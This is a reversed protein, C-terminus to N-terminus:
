HKAVFRHARSLNLIRSIWHRVAHPRVSTESQVQLMRWQDYLPRMAEPLAGRVNEALLWKFRPDTQRPVDDEKYKEWMGSLTMREVNKKVIGRHILNGCWFATQGAKLEITEQGPIDAHRRQQLCEREYATRYRRHSGPVLMLCADDVLALHWTLRTMPRNLIELQEEETGDTENQVFDRHWGFGFDANHPNTFLVVDGLCLKTGLYSEAYSRVPKSMLYEAFIPEGFEPAYLGRIAWPDGLKAYHTFRDVAGSRVKDVVRRSAALLPQLLDPEVADNVIFYGNTQFQEIRAATLV